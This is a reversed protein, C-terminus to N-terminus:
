RSGAPAREAAEAERQARKLQEMARHISEHADMLFAQADMQAYIVATTPGPPRGPGNGSM